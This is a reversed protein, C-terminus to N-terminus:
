TFVHVKTIKMMRRRNKSFITWIKNAHESKRCNSNKLIKMSKKFVMMAEDLINQIELDLQIAKKDQQEKLRETSKQKITRGIFYVIYPLIILKFIMSIEKIKSLEDKTEDYIDIWKPPLKLHDQYKADRHEDEFSNYIGNELINCFKLLFYLIILPEIRYKTTYQNNGMSYDNVM